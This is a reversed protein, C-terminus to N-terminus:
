KELAYEPLLCCHCSFICSEENHECLSFLSAREPDVAEATRSAPWKTQGIVIKFTAHNNTAKHRRTVSSVGSHLTSRGDYSTKNEREVYVLLETERM